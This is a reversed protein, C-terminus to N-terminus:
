ILYRTYFLKSYKGKEQKLRYAWRVESFYSHYEGIGSLTSTQSNSLQFIQSSTREYIFPKIGTRVSIMNSFTSRFCGLFVDAYMLMAFDILANYHFSDTGRSLDACIIKKGFVNKMREIFATNDSTFVVYGDTRQIFKEVFPIIASFYHQESKIWWSNFIAHVRSHIGLIIKNKPINKYLELAQNIISPKFQQVWNSLFYAANKGFRPLAFDTTEQIIYVYGSPYFREAALVVNKSYLHDMWETGVIELYPKFSRQNRYFSKANPPLKNTGVITCKPYIFLDDEKGSSRPQVDMVLTRNSMISLLLLFTTGSLYNGVGNRQSMSIM